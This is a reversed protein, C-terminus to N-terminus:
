REHDSIVVDVTDKPPRNWYDIGQVKGWEDYQKRAQQAKKHERQQRIYYPIILALMAISIVIGVINENLTHMYFIFLAFVAFLVFGGGWFRLSSM